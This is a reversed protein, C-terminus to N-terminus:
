IHLFGFFERFTFVSFFVCRWLLDRGNRGNGKKRPSFLGFFAFEGSREFDMRHGHLEGMQVMESWGDMGLSSSAFHGKAHRLSWFCMTHGDLALVIWASDFFSCSQAATSV